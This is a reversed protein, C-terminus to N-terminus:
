LAGRVTLNLVRLSPMAPPFSIEPAQDLLSLTELSTLANLFSWNTLPNFSVDLSKLSTLSTLFSASGVQNGQLALTQLNTLGAVSTWDAQRNYSVDASRLAPLHRLFALSPFENLTLDLTQLNTLSDFVPGLNTNSLWNYALNLTQLKTLAG